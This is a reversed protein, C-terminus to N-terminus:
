KSSYPVITPKGCYGCIYVGGSVMKSPFYVLLFNGMATQKGCYGCIYVGGSVMKSPFYVLLFNGM